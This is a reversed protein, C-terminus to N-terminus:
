SLAERLVNLNQAMVSCYSVGERLAKASVAQMSNMVLIEMDKSESSAIVSRSLRDGASETVVLYRSQWADAQRALRVITDFSAESETTCGEFAACYVLGYEEALYVFPFRDAVLLHDVRAEAVVREYSLSLRSLEDCYRETNSEYEARGAEDLAAIRESLYRTCTIANKPSLWLHEDFAAHDHGDGDEHVHTHEAEHAHDDEHEVHVQRLVVGEIESLCVTRASVDLGEESALMDLVWADSEGGIYVVLDSELLRVKDAVTPQYSHLDSGDAILLSVETGAREGVINRCWDYASFTTCVIRVTDDRTPRGCSALSGLLLALSLLLALGRVLARM